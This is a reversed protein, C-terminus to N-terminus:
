RWFEWWRPRPKSRHTRTRGGNAVDKVWQKQYDYISCRVESRQAIITVAHAEAQDLSDFILVWDERATDCPKAGTIDLVKGTWVDINVLSYQNEDLTPLENGRYNRIM